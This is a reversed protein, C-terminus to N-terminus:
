EAAALLKRIKQEHVVSAPADPTFVFNSGVWEFGCRQVFREKLEAKDPGFDVCIKAPLGLAICAEKLRAVLQEAVGYKRYDMLIGFHMNEVAAPKPNYSFSVVACMLCGIIQADDVAVWTLRHAITREAFDRAYFVDVEPLVRDSEERVIRMMGVIADSDEPTARRIAIQRKPRLPTTTESM